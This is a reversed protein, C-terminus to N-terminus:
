GDADAQIHKGDPRFHIGYAYSNQVAVIDVSLEQPLFVAGSAPPAHGRAHVQNLLDPCGTRRKHQVCSIRESRLSKGSRVLALGHHLHHPHGAVVRHRRTIVVKSVPQGNQTFSSVLGSKWEQRGIQFPFVAGRWRYLRVNHCVRSPYRNSHEPKNRRLNNDERVRLVQCSQGNFVRHLRGVRLYLRQAVRARGAHNRQDM